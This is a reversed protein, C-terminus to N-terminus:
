LGPACVQYGNDTVDACGAFLCGGLTECRKTVSVSEGRKDMM